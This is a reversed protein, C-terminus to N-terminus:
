INLASVLLGYEGYVREATRYDVSGYIRQYLDTATAYLTAVIWLRSTLNSSHLPYKGRNIKDLLNKKEERSGFTLYCMYSITIQISELLQIAPDKNEQQEMMAEPIAAQLLIAVGGGM